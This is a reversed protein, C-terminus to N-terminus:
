PFPVPLTAGSQGCSLYALFLIISFMLLLLLRSGWRFVTSVPSERLDWPNVKVFRQAHPSSIKIASPFDAYIYFVDFTYTDNRNFPQMSFDLEEKPASVDVPTLLEMKHHRDPTEIKVDIAEDTGGLTVGFDFRDMDKNGKNILTIRAVSLNNVLFTPGSDERNGIMLRAQLSPFNDSEQFIEIVDIAYRIPQLRNRYHTVVANIIAGAAGGGILTIAITSWSM